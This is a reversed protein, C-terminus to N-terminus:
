LNCLRNLGYCLLKSFSWWNVNHKYVTGSYFEIGYNNNGDTAGDMIVADEFPSSHPYTVGTPAGSLTYQQAAFGFIGQTRITNTVVIGYEAYPEGALPTSTITGTGGQIQWIVPIELNLVYLTSTPAAYAASVSLLGTVVVALMTCLFSKPLFSVFRRITGTLEPPPM